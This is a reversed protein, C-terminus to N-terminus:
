LLATHSTGKDTLTDVMSGSKGSFQSLFVWPNCVTAWLCFGAQQKQLSLKGPVCGRKNPPMNETAAQAVCCCFHIAIVSVMHTAFDSINVWERFFNTSGQKLSSNERSFRLLGTYSVQLYRFGRGQSSLFLKCAAWSKEMIQGSKSGSDQLAWLHLLELFPSAKLLLFPTLSNAPSDPFWKNSEEM